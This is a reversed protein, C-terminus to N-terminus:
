VDAVTVPGVSTAGGAPVAILPAGVLVGDAKFKKNVFAVAKPCEAVFDSGALNNLLTVAGVKETVAFKFLKGLWPNVIDANSVDGITPGFATEGIVLPLKRIRGITFWLKIRKNNASNATLTLPGFVHGSVAQARPALWDPLEADDISTLTSGPEMSCEVTVNNPMLNEIADFTDTFQKATVGYKAWRLGEYLLHMLVPAGHAFLMAALEAVHKMDVAAPLGKAQVEAESITSWVCARQGSALCEDLEKQVGVPHWNAGIPAILCRYVGRAIKSEFAARHPDSHTTVLAFTM